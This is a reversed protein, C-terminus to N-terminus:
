SFQILRAGAYLAFISGIVSLSIYAVGMLTAGREILRLCDFAFSSFTTLAGCFGVLLAMSLLGEASRYQYWSYVVGFIFSGMLNVVLTGWPFDSSYDKLWLGAVSFRVSAGLAGGLMIGFLAAM